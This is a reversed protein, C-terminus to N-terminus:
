KWTRINVHLFDPLLFTPAAAANADTLGKPHTRGVGVIGVELLGGSGFVDRALANVEEGFILGITDAHAEEDREGVVKGTSRVIELVEALDGADFIEGIAAAADGNLEKGGDGGLRRERGGRVVM